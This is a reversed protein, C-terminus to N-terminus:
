FGNKFGKGELLKKLKKRTRHLRTKITSTKINKIKSIEKIKNNNYYYMIFIEKDIDDLENLKKNILDMQENAYSLKTNSEINVLVNEDFSSQLKISRLKNKTINKAIKGIYSKIKKIDKISDQKKWLQFFIDSVIEEKDEKTLKNSSENIVIKFVYSNYEKYITDFDIINKTRIKM